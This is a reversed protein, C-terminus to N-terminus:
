TLGVTTVEENQKIGYVRFREKEKFYKYPHKRELKELVTGGSNCFNPM